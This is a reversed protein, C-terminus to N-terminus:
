YLKKEIQNVVKAGNQYSNEQNYKFIKTAKEPISYTIMDEKKYLQLYFLNLRKRPLLFDSVM